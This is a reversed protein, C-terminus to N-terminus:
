RVWHLERWSAECRVDQEGIRFSFRGRAVRKVNSDFVCRVILEGEEKGEHSQCREVWCRLPRGLESSSLLLSCNFLCSILM